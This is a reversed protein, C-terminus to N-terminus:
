ASLPRSASGAQEEGMVVDRAEMGAHHGAEMAAILARLPLTLVRRIEEASVFRMRERRLPFGGLHNVTRHLMWVALFTALVVM